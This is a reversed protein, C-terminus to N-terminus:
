RNRNNPPLVASLPPSSRMPPHRDMQLTQPEPKDDDIYDLITRELEKTSRHVGRRIQKDTLLASRPCREVQNLWSAQHTHFPGALAATQRHGTASRRSTKHVGGYNDM